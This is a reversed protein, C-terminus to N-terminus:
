ICSRRSYCQNSARRHVNFSTCSEGVGSDMSNICDVASQAIRNDPTYVCRHNPHIAQLVDRDIM